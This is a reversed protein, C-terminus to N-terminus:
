TDISFIDACDFQEQVNGIVDTGGNVRVDIDRLTEDADATNYAAVYTTFSTWGSLTANFTLTGVLPNEFPFTVSPYATTDMAESYELTVTFTGNWTFADNILSVEPTVTVTPKESDFYTEAHNFAAPGMVQGLFRGPIDDAPPHIGGWIRSLSCQDSADKYKAWQLTVNMSPGDEFVLYQNMPALFQGMGGPFYEDGTLLTMAEAASRSYTSHGSIYGPFPPTVFTPRQYPWWHAALIWDVGAVDTAPNAIHPPGKWAKLKIQGLHQYPGLTDAALPDLSDIVEIFGPILPIGAPSYNPLTTDSSQGQDAMYRLATIPRASDYWGKIGWATIAADHVAGGLTFYSKVNWELEDMIPGKGNWRRVFDAHDNVYNLIGFWHGPPTESSPGDAWFEALVRTYDGRPVIQPTYPQGTKPNVTYGTSNDGGNLLDYFDPHDAYTTPYDHANGISAPSIDMMVSDAPDLHSSWTSVLV